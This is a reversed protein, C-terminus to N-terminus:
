KKTRVARKREPFLTRCIECVTGDCGRATCYERGYFIIRLHLANWHTEPFLRKLDRETRERMLNLLPQLQEGSQIVWRALTQRPIDLGHRSLMKEFRYLPIRRAVLERVAADGKQLRLDCPDLGDPEVAVYTQSVFQQDGGFARLHRALERFGQADTVM